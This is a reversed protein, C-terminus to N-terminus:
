SITPILGLIGKSWFSPQNNNLYSTHLFIFKKGNKRKSLHVVYKVLKRFCWARGIGVEYSGMTSNQEFCTNLKNKRYKQPGGVHLWTASIVWPNFAMISLFINTKGISDQNKV